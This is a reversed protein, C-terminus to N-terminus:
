RELTHFNITEFTLSDRISTTGTRSYDFLTVGLITDARDGRVAVPLAVRQGVAASGLLSFVEGTIVLGVQEVVVRRTWGHFVRYQAPTYFEHAKAGRLGRGVVSLIEEGALKGTLVDEDLDYTWAWIFPLVHKMAAVDLDRWQPVERERRVDDWSAVFAKLAPDTLETTLQALSL